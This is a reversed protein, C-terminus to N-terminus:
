GGGEALALAEDYAHDLYWQAIEDGTAQWVGEHGLVYGLAEDLYDVRHPQGTLFPHLAICMVRGGEAGEEYLVDFQDRCRRLLEEEGHPGLFLPGDNLEFSYPVGVLRGSRTTIPFPQDDVLWDASYLFGEEALVDMTHPSLSAHPGFAGRMETGTRRRVTEQMDRYLAREDEASIGYLFRTNYLGHGMFAWGREAMASGIEPFHDLVAVNLSATARVGHRDLVELMRWFGVRSGYDRYGYSMADPPAPVRGWATFLPNRPPMLEYLEVNPAVWLAVRAGGPWELRPRRRISLYPLPDREDVGAL